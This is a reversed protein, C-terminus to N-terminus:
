QKKAGLWPNETGARLRAINERHKVFVVVAVCVALPVWDWAGSFVLILPLSAWITLSGLSVFRSRWIVLMGLACAGLMPWFALPIFVGIGTAVAKGGRFGLFCSFVHGVVCALATFSVFLADAGDLCMAGWVPLAGKAVDCVLTAVGYGFGCLRSVNTAGVSNSGSHRPDIHCFTRAIVLGFPVSGLVYAMAVWLFRAILM